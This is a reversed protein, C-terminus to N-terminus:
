MSRWRRRRGTSGDPTRDVCKARVWRSSSSAPGPRRPMVVDRERPAHVQRTPKGRAPRHRTAGHRAPQAARAPSPSPSPSPVLALGLPCVHTARWARGPPRGRGGRTRGHWAGRCGPRAARAGSEVPLSIACHMHMCPLQRHTIPAWGKPAQRKATSNRRGHYWGRSCAAPSSPAPPTTASGTARAHSDVCTRTDRRVIQRRGTTSPAHATLDSSRRNPATAVCRKQATSAHVELNNGVGVVWAGAALWVRQDGFKKKKFFPSQDGFNFNLVATNLEL